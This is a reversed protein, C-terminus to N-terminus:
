FDFKDPERLSTKPIASALDIAHPRARKFRRLRHRHRLMRDIRNIMKEIAGYANSSRVSAILDPGPLEVIGQATFIPSRVKNIVLRIEMRIRIIQHDHRFLRSAKERAYRKMSETLELGDGSLIIDHMEMNM